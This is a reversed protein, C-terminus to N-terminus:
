PRKVCTQSYNAFRRISYGPCAVHVLQALQPLGTCTYVSSSGSVPRVPPTSPVPAVSFFDRRTRPRNLLELPYEEHTLPNTWLPREM